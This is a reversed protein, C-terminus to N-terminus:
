LLTTHLVDGRSQKSVAGRCALCRLRLLLPIFMFYFFVSALCPAPPPPPPPFLAPSALPTHTRPLPPLPLHPHMSAARRPATHLSRVDRAPWEEISNRRHYRWTATVSLLMRYLSTSSSRTNGLKESSLLDLIWDALWGSCESLWGVLWSDLWGFLM